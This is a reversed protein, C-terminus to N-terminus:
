VHRHSWGATLGGIVMNQLNHKPSEPPQPSPTHTCDSKEFGIVRCSNIETGIVNWNWWQLVSLLLSGARWLCLMHQHCTNSMGTWCDGSPSSFDKDGRNRKNSVMHRVGQQRFSWGWMRGTPPTGTHGWGAEWTVAPQPGPVSYPHHGDADPFAALDESLRCLQILYLLSSFIFFLLLAHLFSVPFHHWQQVNERWGWHQYLGASSLAGIMVLRVAATVM